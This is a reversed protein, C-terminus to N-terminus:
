DISVGFFLEVVAKFGDSFTPEPPEMEGESAYMEYLEGVNIGTREEVAAMVTDKVEGTVYDLPDEMFSNVQSIDNQFQAVQQYAFIALGAACQMIDAYNDLKIAYAGVAFDSCTIGVLAGAAFEVADKTKMGLVYNAMASREGNEFMSVIEFTQTDLEFWAWREEGNVMGSATPIIFAINEMGNREIALRKCLLEPFGEDALVQAARKKQDAKSDVVIFGADHPLAAWVDLYSIGKGNALVGAEAQSAFLGLMMRYARAATTEGQFVQNNHNMLDVSAATGTDTKRLTFALAIPDIQRGTMVNLKECLENDYDALAKILKNLTAHGFWRDTSYDSPEDAAGAERLIAADYALAADECIEPTNYAATVFLDTLTDDEKLEITHTLKAYKYDAIGTSLEVTVYELNYSATDIWLDPSSLFGSRTDAIATVKSHVGDESAGVSIFSIDFADLGISDLDFEAQLLLVEEYIPGDAGGESGGLIDGFGGVIAQQTADAADGTLEGYAYIRIMGKAPGVTMGTSNVIGLGTLESADHCL